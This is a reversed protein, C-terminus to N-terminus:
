CGEDHEYREMWCTTIYGCGHEHTVPTESTIKWEMM